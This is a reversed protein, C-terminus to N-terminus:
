KKQSDRGYVALSDRDDVSAFDTIYNGDLWVETLNTLNSLVSIDTIRNESLTLYTLSKLNGLADIESIENNHLYLVNLNSLARLPEIDVIYNDSLYLVTLKKLYILSEANKIYNDALSLDSLEKLYKLAGIDEIDNSTIHLTKLNRLNSLANIDTITNYSLVLVELKGCRGLASIDTLSNNNLYLRRINELNEVFTVDSLENYEIELTDLGTMEGIESINQDTLNNHSLSLSRIKDMQLLPELSEIEVDRIVVRTIPLSLDKVSAVISSLRAETLINGSIDEDNYEYEIFGFAVYDAAINITQVNQIDEDSATEGDKLGLFKGLATVVEANEESATSESVEENAISYRPAGCYGCFNGTNVNGCEDCIWIQEEESITDKETEAMVDYVGYVSFPFISLLICFLFTLFAKM